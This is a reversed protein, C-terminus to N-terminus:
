EWPGAGDRKSEPEAAKFGIKCHPCTWAGDTPVDRGANCGPCPVFLRYLITAFLIAVAGLLVLSVIHLGTSPPPLSSLFFGVTLVGFGRMLNTNSLNARSLPNRTKTM